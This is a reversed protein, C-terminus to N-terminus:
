LSIRCAAVGAEQRAAHGAHLLRPGRLSVGGASTLNLSNVINYPM